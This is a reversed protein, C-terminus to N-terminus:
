VTIISAGSKLYATLLEGTGDVHIGLKELKEIARHRAACAVCVTVEVGVHRLMEVQMQAAEDECLIEVSPGWVLLEVRKWWDKLLSDRAYQFAMDAAAIRDANIWLVVLTDSSDDM